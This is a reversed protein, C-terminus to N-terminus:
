TRRRNHLYGRRNLSSRFNTAGLSGWSGIKFSTIESTSFSASIVLLVTHGRKNKKEKRTKIKKPKEKRKKPKIPAVRKKKKKKENKENKENEEKTEEKREFNISISDCIVFVSFNDCIFFIIPFSIDGRRSPAVITRSPERNTIVFDFFSSTYLVFILFFCLFLKNM